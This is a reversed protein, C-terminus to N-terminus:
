EGTSKPWLADWEKRLFNIAFEAAVYAAYDQWSDSKEAAFDCVAKFSVFRPKPDPAEHCSRYVGYTEMEVGILKRWNRQIELIREADDIVQDAAGVPGVHLRNRSPPVRGKWGDRIEDFLANSGRYKLLVSRLRANLGIPYPDPQFDRIGNLRIVKGSNYDVSPDAVLVDGFQKGGDKTGAAIGIMMVIRPKFQLVLQTTAISAATLGMSTATTAVIRLTKQSNTILTSERYVHTYRPNGIEKWRSSGGLASLVAVFEPQELACIIGVDSGFKEDDRQTQLQLGSLRKLKEVGADTLVWQLPPGKSAVRVDSSYKRLRAPVNVPVKNGFQLALVEVIQSVTVPISWAGLSYLAALIKYQSTRQSPKVANVISSFDVVARSQSTFRSTPLMTAKSIERKRAIRVFICVAYPRL